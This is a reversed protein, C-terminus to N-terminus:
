SPPVLLQRFEGKFFLLPHGPHDLWLQEVRGVVIEHDGAAHVEGLSCEIYALSDTILPNGRESWTWDVGAFKDVGSRAFGRSVDEQHQGLVNVCFRGMARLKPWTTSSNAACFLVLPPDLSVSSFSQATMGVPTGESGSTIIVVGSAFHGLVNRFHSPDVAEVRGTDTPKVEGM